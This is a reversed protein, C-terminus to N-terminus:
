EDLDASDQKFETVASIVSRRDIRENTAQRAMM